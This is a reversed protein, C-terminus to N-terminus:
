ITLLKHEVQLSMSKRKPKEAESPSAAASAPQAHAAPQPSPPPRAAGASINGGSTQASMTGRGPVSPSASPTTGSRPDPIPGFGPPTPLDEIPIPKGSKHLKMADQYQQCIRGIRRARSSNGEQSFYLLISCKLRFIFNFIGRMIVYTYGFCSVSVM